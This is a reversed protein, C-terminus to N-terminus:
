IKNHNKKSNGTKGEPFELPGDPELEDALKQKVRNYFEM